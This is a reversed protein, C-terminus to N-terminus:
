EENPDPPLQRFEGLGCERLVDRFAKPEVAARECIDSADHHNFAVEELVRGSGGIVIAALVFISFWDPQWGAQVDESPTDDM